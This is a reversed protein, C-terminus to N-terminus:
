GRGGDHERRQLEAALVMKTLEVAAQTMGPAARADGIQKSVHRYWREYLDFIEKESNM